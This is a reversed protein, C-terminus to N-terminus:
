YEIKEFSIKLTAERLKSDERSLDRFIHDSNIVEWAARYRDLLRTQYESGMLYRHEAVRLTGPERSGPGVIQDLACVFEIGPEAGCLWGYTALQDAWTVNVQELNYNINVVTGQVRMPQVARHSGLNNGAANRLRLYGKTPSMKYSSCYGNVKWDLIVPVGHKNVYYLDPKGLLPVNSFTGTATDEFVPQSGSELEKLLDYAAGSGLYFDFLKKGHERAWDINHSEVQSEVDLEAAALGLKKILYNKIFCDFAAGAAMPQTQPERDRKSFYYKYFEEPDKEWRALSTPSLYKLKM